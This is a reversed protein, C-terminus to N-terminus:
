IHILSLLLEELFHVHLDFDFGAKLADFILAYNDSVTRMRVEVFVVRREDVPRLKHFNYCAPYLVKMSLFKVGAKLIRRLRSRVAKLCKRLSIM